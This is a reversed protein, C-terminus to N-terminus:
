SQLCKKNQYINYVLNILKRVNQKKFFSYPSFCEFEVLKINKYKLSLKKLVLYYAKVNIYGVILKYKKSINRIKREVAELLEYLLRPNRKFKEWSPYSDLKYTLIEKMIKKDKKPNWLGILKKTSILRICDIAYLDIHKLLNNRKLINTIYKWTRINKIKGGYKIWSACPLIIAIKSKKKLM